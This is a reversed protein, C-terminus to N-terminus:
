NWNDEVQARVAVCRGTRRFRATITSSEPVRNSPDGPVGSVLYEHHDIAQTMIHSDGRKWCRPRRLTGTM